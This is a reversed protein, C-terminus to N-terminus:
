HIRVLWNISDFDKDFSVITKIQHRRASLAILADHFNLAGKHMRMLAVIPAYEEQINLYTWVISNHPVQRSITDIIKEAQSTKHKEEARKCLVSLTENMVCDFFVSNFELRQTISVAKAHWVDNKDILAVLFSTDVVTQESMAPNAKKLLTEVSFSWAM